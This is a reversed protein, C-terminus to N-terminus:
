QVSLLRTLSNKDKPPMRQIHYSFLIFYVCLRLLMFYTMNIAWAYPTLWWTPLKASRPQAAWMDPLWSGKPQDISAEAMIVSTVQSQGMVSRDQLLSAWSNEWLLPQSVLPLLRLGVPAKWGRKALMGSTLCSTLTLAPPCQITVCCLSDYLISAMKAIYQLFSLFLNEKNLCPDM